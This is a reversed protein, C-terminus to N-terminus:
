KWNYPYLLSEEEVEIADIKELLDKNIILKQAELNKQLQEKSDVGIIISDIEPKAIVYGLALDFMSLDNNEALKKLEQVYKSLPQLYAPFTGDEKFFLGQLFVSRVQLIKGAQKAAKILDGRKSDNDLLNFPLQIVDIEPDDICARFEENTYISVGSYSIKNEQKLEKLVTLAAPTNRLDEFRHFFYVNVKELKLQALTTDLQEPISRDGHVHFKTNVEFYKGTKAGFEGIIQQANGYADASDLQKIGQTFALDLIDFVNEKSPQGAINNIGYPLGFQVTGLIFRENM